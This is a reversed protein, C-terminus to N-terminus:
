EDQKHLYDRNKWAYVRSIWSAPLLSLLTVFIIQFRNRKRRRVASLMQKSEPGRGEMLLHKAMSIRTEDLFTIVSARLPRPIADKALLKDATTLFPWQYNRTHGATATSDERHYVTTSKAVLVCPYYLLIRFWLDTDQSRACGVTFTGAKDLVSKPFMISNTHMPSFRFQNHISFMDDVVGSDLGGLIKETTEACVDVQTGDVMSIVYATSYLAQARNYRKYVDELVALHDERWEDDPDLFTICEGRANSIGTNRAASTGGNEQHFVRTNGRGQYWQAVQYSNDTSGDDVLLIEFDRCTQRLLSDMARTLVAAKNYIPVIVSFLPEM